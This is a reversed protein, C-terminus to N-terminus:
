ERWSSSEFLPIDLASAVAAMRQDYSALAVAQGHSALYICSALHLADFTRL